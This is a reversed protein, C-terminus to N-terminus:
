TTAPNCTPPAAGEYWDSEDDDVVFLDTPKPTRGPVDAGPRRFAEIDRWITRYRRLQAMMDATEKVSDFVPPRADYGPPTLAPPRIRCRPDRPISSVSASLAALAILAALASYM